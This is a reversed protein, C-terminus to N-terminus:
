WYHVGTECCPRIYHSTLDKNRVSNKNAHQRVGHEVGNRHVHSRASCLVGASQRHRGRGHALIGVCRGGGPVPSNKYDAHSSQHAPTPCDSRPTTPSHHHPPSPRLNPSPFRCPHPVNGRHRCPPPVSTPLANAKAKSRPPPPPPHPAFTHHSRNRKKGVVHTDIRSKSAPVGRM